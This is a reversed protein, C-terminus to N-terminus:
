IIPSNNILGKMGIMNAILFSPNKLKIIRVSVKKKKENKVKYDVLSCDENDEEEHGSSSCLAIVRKHSDDAMVDKLKTWKPMQKKAITKLERITLVLDM